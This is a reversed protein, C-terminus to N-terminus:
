QLLPSPFADDFPPFKLLRKLSGLYTLMYDVWGPALSEFRRTPGNQEDTWLEAAKRHAPSKYKQQTIGTCIRFGGTKNRLCDTMKRVLEGPRGTREGFLEQETAGILFKDGFTSSMRTTLRDNSYLYLLLHLIRQLNVHQTASRTEIYNWMLRGEDNPHHFNLDISSEKGTLPDFGEAAQCWVLMFQYLSGARYMSLRRLLTVTSERDLTEMWASLQARENKSNTFDAGPESLRLYPVGGATGKLELDPFLSSAASSPARPPTTEMVDAEPRVARPSASGSRETRRSAERAKAGKCKARSFRVSLARRAAVRRLICGAGRRPKAARGSRGDSM